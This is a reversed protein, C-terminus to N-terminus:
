IEDTKEKKTICFGYTAFLAEMKEPDREWQGLKRSIHETWSYNNFTYSEEKEELPLMVNNNRYYNQALYGKDMQEMAKTVDTDDLQRYRGEFLTFDKPFRPRVPPNQDPYGMVIGVLPMVKEPLNMLEKNAEAAFPVFGLYCTGLGMSEAAIVMNQAAYAADQISFLLTASDCMERQWGRAAMVKEMKHLDVCVTFLLPANFAHKSADKCLIISYCQHAFAAQQGATVITDIVEDPVAQRTYKRISRHGLLVDITPNHIV